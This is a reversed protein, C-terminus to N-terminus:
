FLARYKVTLLLEPLYDFRYLLPILSCINCKQLCHFKWNLPNRLYSLISSHFDVQNINLLFILQSGHFIGKSIDVLELLLKIIICESERGLIIFDYLFRCLSWGLYLSPNLFSSPSDATANAIIPPADVGTDSYESWVVADSTEVCIVMDEKCKSGAFFISYRM